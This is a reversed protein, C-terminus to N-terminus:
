HAAGGSTPLALTSFPSHAGRSHDGVMMGHEGPECEQASLIRDPALGLEECAQAFHPLNALRRYAPTGQREHAGTCTLM